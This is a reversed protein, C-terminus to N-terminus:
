ARGTRSWIRGIGFVGLVGRRDVPFAVLGSSFGSSGNRASSSLGARLRSRSRSSRVARLRPTSPPGSRRRRTWAAEGLGRLGREGVAGGGVDIRRQGLREAQAAGVVARVPALVGGVVGRERGLADGAGDLRQGPEEGLAVREELVALEPRGVPRGARLLPLAAHTEREFGVELGGAVLRAAM